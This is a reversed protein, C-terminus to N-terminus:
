AAGERDEDDDMYAYAEIESVLRDDRRRRVWVLVGVALALVAAAALAAPWWGPLPWGAASVQPVPTPRTPKPPPTGPSTVVVWGILLAVAVALAVWVRWFKVLLYNKEGFRWDASRKTTDNWPM